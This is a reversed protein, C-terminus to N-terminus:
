SQCPVLDSDVIWETTVTIDCTKSQDPDLTATITFTGQDNIGDGDTDETLPILTSFTDFVVDSEYGTPITSINFNTRDLPSNYGVTSYGPKPSISDLKPYVKITATDTDSGKTATVTYGTDKNVAKFTVTKGNINNTGGSVSLSADTPSTTFTISDNYVIDNEKPTITVIDSNATASWSLDPPEGGGDGGQPPNIEGWLKLTFASM